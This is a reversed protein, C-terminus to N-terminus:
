PKLVTYGLHRYMDAMDEDWDVIMRMNDNMAWDGGCDNCVVRRSHANFQQVVRYNHGMLWCGIRELWKM